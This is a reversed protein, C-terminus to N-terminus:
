WGGIRKDCFVHLGSCQWVTGLKWVWVRVFWRVTGMCFFAACMMYNYQLPSFPQLLVAQFLAGLECYNWIIKAYLVLDHM